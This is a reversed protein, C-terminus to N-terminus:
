SNLVQSVEIGQSLIEEDCENNCSSDNFSENELTTAKSMDLCVDRLSMNKDSGDLESYTAGNLPVPVSFFKDDEFCDGVIADDPNTSSPSKKSMMTDKLFFEFSKRSSISNEADSGRGSLLSDKAHETQESLKSKLMSHGSRSRKRDREELLLGNSGNRKISESKSCSSNNSSSLWAIVTENKSVRENEIQFVEGTGSSLQLFNFILLMALFQQSVIHVFYGVNRELCKIRRTVPCIVQTYERADKSSKLEMKKQEVTPSNLASDIKLRTCIDAM